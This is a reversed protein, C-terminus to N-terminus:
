CNNKEKHNIPLVITKDVRRKANFWFGDYYFRFIWRLPFDTLMPIDQQGIDLLNYSWEKQRGKIAISGKAKYYNEEGVKTDEEIWGIEFPLQLVSLITKENQKNHIICYQEGEEGDWSTQLFKVNLDNDNVFLGKTWSTSKRIYEQKEIPLYRGFELKKLTKKDKSILCEVYIENESLSIRTDDWTSIRVRAKQSIFYDLLFTGWNESTERSEFYCNNLSIKFPKLGEKFDGTIVYVDQSPINLNESDKFNLVLSTENGDYQITTTISKQGNEIITECISYVVYTVM